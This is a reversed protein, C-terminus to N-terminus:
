RREAGRRPLGADVRPVDIRRSPGSLNTHPLFLAGSIPGSPSRLWKRLDPGRTPYASALPESALRRRATRTDPLVLLRSVTAARWSFRELAIGRALRVKEDHKRLTAENSVVDSKVEVILLAREAGRWALVDISGREGFVAYTVEVVVEWGTRRLAGVIESVSAAHARDLLRDLEGGRWRIDLHGSADLAALARRLARVSVADVHGRKILSITQQSTNARAALDSQRWSLRRRLARVVQGVRIDDM